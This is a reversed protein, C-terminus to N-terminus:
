DSGLRDRVDEPIPKPRASKIDVYVQILELECCQRQKRLENISVLFSVSTTGIQKVRVLADFEDDKCLPYHFEAVSKRVQFDSASNSNESTMGRNRLYEMIAADAYEFYRSYFVVGQPDLESFRVRDSLCVIWDSESVTRM